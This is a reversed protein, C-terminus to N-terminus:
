TKITKGTIPWGNAPHPRSAFMSAAEASAATVGYGIKIGDHGNM